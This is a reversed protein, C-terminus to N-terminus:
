GLHKELWGSVDRFAQERARDHFVEHYSGPYLRLDKDSSGITKFLMKAGEPDVLPDEEGQIILVPFTFEGAKRFVEEMARTMEVYFRATIKSHVLPDNRYKEVEEPQTSISEPPLESDQTFAPFLSSFVKGLVIKWAPVKMRVKLGPSSLVFGKFGPPHTLGYHFAILGGLSHGMVFVPHLDRTELFQRFDKVESIFDGFRLIHGRKGASQGHGPLDFGLLSFGGSTLGEAVDGYRLVHEGLGHILLIQAKESDARFMHFHRKEGASTEYFGDDERM